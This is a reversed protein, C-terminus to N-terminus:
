RHSNRNLLSKNYSSMYASSKNTSLLTHPVAIFSSKNSIFLHWLSHSLAGTTTKSGRLVQRPHQCAEGMARCYVLDVSGNWTRQHHLHARQCWTMSWKPFFNFKDSNKCQQKGTQWQLHVTYKLYSNALFFNKYFFSDWFDCPQYIQQNDGM